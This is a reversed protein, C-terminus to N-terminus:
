KKFIKINEGVIRHNKMNNLVGHFLLESLVKQKENFSLIKYSIEANKEDYVKIPDQKFHKTKQSLEM